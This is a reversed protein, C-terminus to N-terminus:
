HIINESMSTTVYKFSHINLWGMVLSADTSDLSTVTLNHRGPILPGSTWAILSCSDNLAMSGNLYTDLQEVEKGDLTILAVRGAPDYVFNVTVRTGLGPYIYIGVLGRLFHLVQLYCLFVRIPPM